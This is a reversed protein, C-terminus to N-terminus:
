GRGVENTLVRAARVESPEDSIDVQRRFFSECRERYNTAWSLSDRLASSLSATDSTVEFAGEPEEFTPVGEGHPNHYVFPVGRAMAEFPVTSFRSVLVGAKTLLHRMPRDAIPLQGNWHDREAPHLSVVFPLGAKRCADVCTSLWLDRADSLVGYTFNLNLVVLDSRYPRPPSKWIRELRSSGVVSTRLGPLARVDNQGQALIIEATQYAKRDWHVDDDQFDQVDEVKAFTPVGLEKAALIYERPYEGWDNLSLIGLSEVLWDGPETAAIVPFDYRRLGAETTKWRRDDVVMVSEIGYRALEEALPGIEDTHYAAAPTMVIRGRVPSASGTFLRAPVIWRHRHSLVRAHALTPLDKAKRAGVSAEATRWAAAVDDSLLEHMREIVRQAAGKQGELDEAKAARRAARGILDDLDLSWVHFSQLSERLEKVTQDFAGGSYIEVAIADILKRTRTLDGIYSGYPEVYPYPCGELEHVPQWAQMNESALNAIVAASDASTTRFRSERKQRYAVGVSQVPEFVWGSRLIRNWLEADEASPRNPWGGVQM